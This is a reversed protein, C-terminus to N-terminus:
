VPCFGETTPYLFHKTFSCHHSPTHFLPFPVDHHILAHKQTFAACFCFLLSLVLEDLVDLPPLLCSLVSMCTRVCARVCACVCVCARVCVYVCVCVCARARARVCAYVCLCVCARM